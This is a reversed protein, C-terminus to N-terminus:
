DFYVRDKMIVDEKMMSINNLLISLGNGIDKTLPYLLCLYRGHSHNCYLPHDRYKFYNNALFPILRTILELEKSQNEKLCRTFYRILTDRIEKESQFNNCLRNIMDIADKTIILMISYDGLKKFEFLTFLRIYRITIHYITKNYDKTRTFFNDIKQKTNISCSIWFGDVKPNYVIRVKRKSM